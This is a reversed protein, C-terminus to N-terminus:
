GSQSPEQKRFKIGKIFDVKQRKDNEQELKDRAGDWYGMIYFSKSDNSDGSPSKSDPDIKYEPVDTRRVLLRLQRHTLTVVTGDKLVEKRPVLRFKFVYPLVLKWIAWYLVGFMMVAIGVLCYLYYPLPPTDGVGNSFAVVLLFFTALPLWVVNDSILLSVVDSHLQVTTGKFPRPLHPKKWRLYFLGLIVSLNIIQSPYGAIDLIFPYAVSLPPAIIVIVTSILHVVLGPFPANQTPWNTAWLRSGFPLPIGEKALEQNVRSASYAQVRQLCEAIAILPGESKRLYISVGLASNHELDLRLAVFVTLARQAQVGFVNEFFLSAVTTDSELIDTKSSASYIYCEFEPTTQRPNRVENLVYNANQWGYYTFLVAFMATAYDHASNSSGAFADNFNVHPDKVRTKGSLVVWGTVVILLLIVTKFLTLVAWLDARHGASILISKTIIMLLLQVRIDFVYKEAFVICSPSSFNLTVVYVAFIVTVLHKPRRYVAELYVKEGGSRPFMTGFELWIFVGCLSLAFGIVWADPIRRCVRSFRSTHRLPFYVLESIAGVIDSFHGRRSHSDALTSTRSKTRTWGSDAMEPGFTVSRKDDREDHSHGVGTLENSYGPTHFPSSDSM